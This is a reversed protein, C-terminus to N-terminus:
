EALRNRRFAENLLPDITCEYEEMRAILAGNEDLFEINAQASHKESKTVQAVIRGVNPSFKPQFQRYRKIFTPLSATGHQAFSWLIMMQFSSDVILPDTLWHNRLPQRIWASPSPAAKTIGIIGEPSIGEIHEIGHFDPGHFLYTRYVDGNQYPAPQVTVNHIAPESKPLRSTLVFEACAHRVPQGSGNVSHLEVPVLYHKGDKRTKGVRVQMTMPKNDHLIVGKLIRLGDFGYLVFGPNDHLAAHALWEIMMAMPLVPCGNIVHSKLFPYSEIDLTREFALALEPECPEQSFYGAPIDTSEEQSLKFLDESLRSGKGLIVIEIPSSPERGASLEQILYEAGARLPILQIGEQQFLNELAPTVMGGAWPGWNISLVRCNSRVRAQQQAIKNLAENAMAYDVQGTRGCRATTSSFMVLTKLPHSELVSLLNLAGEVKTGYVREFQEPTKNEIKNDALVGAGHILGTITGCTDEVEKAVARVAELDRVDVSRYLVNSGTLGIRELTERIERGALIRQYVQGVEKPTMKRDAHSIIAKKIDGESSLGTLWGPEATPLESRGLLVITPQFAKALSVACEATVGRAGGTVIVVDETSLIETPKRQNLPVTKLQLTVRGRESIGVESPGTLFIEDMLAAVATETSCDEALDIAKSMVEPWERGVTKALGALSGSLVDVGSTLTGFGFEGDLRSVTVFFSSQKKLAPRALQTLMVAKSFFATRNSHEPPTLLILGGLSDPAQLSDLRDWVIRQPLFGKEQLSKELASTVDSDDDTLWVVAGSNLM